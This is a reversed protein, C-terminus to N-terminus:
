TEVNANVVELTTDLNSAHELTAEIPTLLNNINLIISKHFFFEFKM